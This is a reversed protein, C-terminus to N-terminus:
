SKNEGGPSDESSLSRFFTDLDNIDIAQIDGELPGTGFVVSGGLENATAEIQMVLDELAGIAKENIEKVHASRDLVVLYPGFEDFEVGLRYHLHQNFIDGIRLFRVYFEMVGAETQDQAWFLTLANNNTPDRRIGFIQYSAEGMTIPTDAELVHKRITLPVGNIKKKIDDLDM